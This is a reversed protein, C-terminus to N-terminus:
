LGTLQRAVLLGQQYAAGPFLYGNNFGAQIATLRQQPTGHFNPSNFDYGGKSFFSQFAPGVTFYNYGRRALYWGALFDAHLENVPTAPHRGAKFQVIHAYEHALIGPISLGVGGDRYLEAQILRLGIIVTGDPFQFNTVASTAMANEGESDDYFWGMPTVGFSSSLIPSESRFANDLAFNGTSPLLGSNSPFASLSNLSCGVASIRPRAPTPTAGPGPSPGAGGEPTTPIECGTITIALVFLATVPLGQWRKRM